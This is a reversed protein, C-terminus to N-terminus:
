THSYIMAQVPAPPPPTSAAMRSLTKALVETSKKRRQKKKTKEKTTQMSSGSNDLATAEQQGERKKEKQKRTHRLATHPQRHGGGRGIHIRTHTHQHPLHNPLSTRVNRKKENGCTDGKREEGQVTTVRRASARLTQQQRRQSTHAHEGEERGGERWM